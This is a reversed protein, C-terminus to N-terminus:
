VIRCRLLVADGPSLRPYYKPTIAIQRFGAREYFRIADANNSQVHLEAEVINEDSQCILLSRRLLEAGAHSLM